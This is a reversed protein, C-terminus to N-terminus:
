CIRAKPAEQNLRMEEDPDRRRLKQKNSLLVNILSRQDVDIDTM